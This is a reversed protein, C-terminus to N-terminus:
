KKVKLKAEVATDGEEKTLEAAKKALGKEINELHLNLFTYSVQEAIISVETAVPIPNNITDLFLEVGPYTEWKVDVKILNGEKDRKEKVDAPYCYPVAMNPQSAIVKECFLLLNLITNAPIQVMDNPQYRYEFPNQIQPQTTTEQENM